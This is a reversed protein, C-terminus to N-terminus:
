SSGAHEGCPWSAKITTGKGENSVVVFSGGSLEAREKMSALGMGSLPSKVMAQKKLDFGEGNDEISLTVRDKKRSIKVRVATAKSHKATNNLAEQLIRFMIVKLPEPVEEERIHLQGEVAMHHYSGQFDRLFWRVTALLGMNDLMSPRLDNCIRRTEKITGKLIDIAQELSNGEGNRRQGMRSLEQELRFKVAALSSGISDHLDKSIIKREMEQTQLVKASLARLEKESQMLKGQAKIRETVNILCLLLGETKGTEDKVPHLTWDWYTTGRQPHESYEFAKAHATHPRGTEVVRRFIGENEEHPYLDFHNKGIFFEPERSDAAAYAPNVRIINFERDMYAICFNTTNFVDELLENAQRLMLEAEKREEMEAELEEKMKLLEATREQVRKELVDRSERLVKEAAKLHSIDRWALVGGRVDGNQDLIPGAGCLLTAQRGNPLIVVIERDSVTEKHHMARSLPLDEDRCPTVGDKELVNFGGLIDPISKGKLEEESKIGLLKRGYKNIMRLKMSPFDAITIGTPVNEMVTELTRKEEKAGERAKSKGPLGEFAAVRRRLVELEDILQKKTKYKDKV